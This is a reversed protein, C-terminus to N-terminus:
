LEGIQKLLEESDGEIQIIKKRSKLGSRISIDSNKVGWEKALFKVVAKNAKSDEPPATIKVRLIKCGNEEVVGEISNKSSKPIVKINITHAM